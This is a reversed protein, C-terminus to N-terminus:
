TSDGREMSPTKECLTETLNNLLAAISKDYDQEILWYECGYQRCGDLYFQNETKLQTKTAYSDDLRSEIDSAHSMIEDYNEDIYGESMCLCVYHIADRYSESFSNEWDFPIYCGEISLNQENEIATKIMERLIPWMFATLEEDDEVSLPCFGSRILGMKLHDISLYPYLCTELLAQALKTKGVHTAGSILIVM